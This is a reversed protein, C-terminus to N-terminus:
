HGKNGTNQNVPRSYRNADKYNIYILLPLSIILTLPHIFAVLVALIERLERKDKLEGAYYGIILIIIVLGATSM